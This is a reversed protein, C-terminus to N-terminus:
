VQKHTHKHVHINKHEQLLGQMQTHNNKKEQIATPYKGKQAVLFVDDIAM